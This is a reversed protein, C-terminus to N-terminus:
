PTHLIWRAREAPVNTCADLFLSRWADATSYTAASKPGVVLCLTTDSLVLRGDAQLVFRQLADVAFFATNRGCARLLLATGPLAGSNIGAATMCMDVGPFDLRQEATLQVASDATLGSKCNHAFLPLDVRLNQGAGPIDVCYGDHPRDLPASLRLHAADSASAAWSFFCGVIVVLYRCVACLAASM